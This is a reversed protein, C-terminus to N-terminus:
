RRRPARVLGLGSRGEAAARRRAAHRCARLRLRFRLRRRHQETRLSM